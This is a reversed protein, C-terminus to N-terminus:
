LLMNYDPLNKGDNQPIYVRWSSLPLIREQFIPVLCPAMVGSVMNQVKPNM